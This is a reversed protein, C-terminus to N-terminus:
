LESPRRETSSIADEVSLEEFEVYEGVGRSVKKDTAADSTTEVTVDGERRGRRRAEKQAEAAARDFEEARRRLWRTFLARVIVGFLWFGAIIFVLVTFFKIM